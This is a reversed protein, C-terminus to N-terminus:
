VSRKRALFLFLLPRLVNECICAVLNEVVLRDAWLWIVYSAMQLYVFHLVKVSQCFENSVIKDPTKFVHIGSIVAWFQNSDPSAFALKNGKRLVFIGSCFSFFPFVLLALPFSLTLELSTSVRAEFNLDPVEANKDIGLGLCNRSLPILFLAIFFFFFFFRGFVSISALSLGGIYQKWNSLRSYGYVRFFEEGSSGVSLFFSLDTVGLGTPLCCCCCCSSFVSWPVPLVCFDILLSNRSKLYPSLKGIDMGM